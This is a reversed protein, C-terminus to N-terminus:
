QWAENRRRATCGLDVLADYDESDHSTIQNTPYFDGFLEDGLIKRAEERGTRPHLGNSFLLLIDKKEVGGSGCFLGCGSGVSGGVGSGCLFGDSGLGAGLGLAVGGAVGDGEDAGGGCAGRGVGGRAKTSQKLISPAFTTTSFIEPPWCVTPVVSATLRGASPMVTTM